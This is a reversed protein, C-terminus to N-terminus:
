NWLCGIDINEKKTQEESFDNSDNSENSENSENSVNSDNSTPSAPETPINNNDTDTTYGIEEDTSENDDDENDKTKGINSEHASIITDLCSNCKYYLINCVKNVITPKRQDVLKNQKIDYDKFFDNYKYRHVFCCAPGFFKRLVNDVTENRQYRNLKDVGVSHLDQLKKEYIDNIKDEFSMNLIQRRYYINENYSLITNYLTVSETFGNFIRSKEQLIKNKEQNYISDFMYHQKDKYRTSTIYKDKLTKLDKEAISFNQLLKYIDEKTEDMKLYRSISLSMAIFTSLSISIVRLNNNSFHMQSKLSEFFTIITSAIIVIVQIASIKCSLNEYKLYLVLRCNNSKLIHEEISKCDKKCTIFWSSPPTQIKKSTMIQTVEDKKEQKESINLNVNNSSLAM